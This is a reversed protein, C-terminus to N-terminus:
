QGKKDAIWTDTDAVLDTRACGGVSVRGTAFSASAIRGTMVVTNGKLISFEGGVVTPPSDPIIPVGGCSVAVLVDNRITFRVPTLWDYGTGGEWEGNFDFSGPLAYTYGGPLTASQGDPNTVVVTVTGAGHPPAQAYLAGEFLWATQLVGAHANVGGLSVTAGARFGTGSIVIPSGGSTSGTAPSVATVSPPAGNPAEFTYTFGATLTSSDGNANTVVVDVPGPGHAPAVAVMKTGTPFPTVVARIGDFSVTTGPNLGTGALTVQTAGAVTGSTPTIATLRLNTLPSDPGVLNFAGGEGDPHRDGCGLGASLVLLGSIV